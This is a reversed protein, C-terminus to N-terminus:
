SLFIQWYYQLGRHWVSHLRATQITVDDDLLMYFVQPTNAPYEVIEVVNLLDEFTLSGENHQAFAFGYQHLISDM